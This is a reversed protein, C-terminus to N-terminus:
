KITTVPEKAEQYKEVGGCGSLVDRDKESNEEEGLGWQM